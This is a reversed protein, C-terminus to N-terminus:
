QLGRGEVLAVAAEAQLLGTRAVPVGVQGDLHVQVLLGIRSGLEGGGPLVVVVAVRTVVHLGDRADTVLGVEDGLVGGAAGGATGAVGGGGRSVGAPGGLPERYAGSATRSPQIVYEM